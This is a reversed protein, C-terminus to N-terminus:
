IIGSKRFQCKLGDPLDNESSYWVFRKYLELPRPNREKLTRIGQFLSLM